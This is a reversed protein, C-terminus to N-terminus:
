KRKFETESSSFALRLDLTRRSGPDFELSASNASSEALRSPCEVADRRLDHVRFQM